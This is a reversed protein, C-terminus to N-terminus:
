SFVKTREIEWIEGARFTIITIFPDSEAPGPVYHWQTVTPIRTRRFEDFTVAGADRQVMGRRVEVAETGPSTVLDPPGARVLVESESMGKRLLFYAYSDIQGAAAPLALAACLASLLAAALAAHRRGTSPNHTFM